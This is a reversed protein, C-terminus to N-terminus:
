SHVVTVVLLRAPETERAIARGEPGRVGGMGTILALVLARSM